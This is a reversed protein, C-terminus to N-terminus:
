TAKDPAAASAPVLQVTRTYFPDGASRGSIALLTAGALEKGFISVALARMAALLSYKNRSGWGAMFIALETGAGAAFFYLVAADLEVPILLRGYPFHLLAM